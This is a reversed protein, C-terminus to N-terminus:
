IELIARPSSSLSYLSFVFKSSGHLEYNPAKQWTPGVWYSHLLLGRGAIRLLSFIIRKWANEKCTINGRLGKGRQEGGHGRM